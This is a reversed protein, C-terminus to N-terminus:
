LDNLSSQISSETPTEDVSPPYFLGIILWSPQQSHTGMFFHLDRKNVMYDFYKDHLKDWLGKPDPYRKGWSRYSELLEWDECQIDHVGEGVCGDCRFRYKFQHPIRTVIPVKAGEITMQYDVMLHLDTRLDEKSYFELIESPKILGLSTRDRTFDERLAEISPSLHPMIWEKRGDWDAPKVLGKDFTRITGDRVRFSDKRGLKEGKAPKVECDIITYKQIKHFGRFKTYDIPYLRIWEGDETLGATCVVDGHKRSHEPYAKVVILIRKTV